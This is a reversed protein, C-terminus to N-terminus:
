RGGTGARRARVGALAQKVDPPDRDVQQVELRGEAPVV